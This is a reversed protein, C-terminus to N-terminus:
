SDSYDDAFDKAPTNLKEYITNIFGVKVLSVRQREEWKTQIRARPVKDERATPQSFVTAWIM